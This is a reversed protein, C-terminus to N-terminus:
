PWYANIFEVRMDGLPDHTHLYPVIDWVEQVGMIKPSHFAINYMDNM